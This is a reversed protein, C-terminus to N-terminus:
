QPVGYDHVVLQYYANLGHHVMVALASGVFADDYGPYPPLVVATGAPMFATTQVYQQEVLQPLFKKLKIFVKHGLDAQYTSEARTSSGDLEDYDSGLYVKSFFSSKAFPNVPNMDRLTQISFPTEPVWDRTNVVHLAWGGRMIYDFDYAYYQNGPKSAASCYTKITIAGDGLLGKDLYYLYSRLLFAISGGQSHGMIIFSRIGKQHYERVKEVVTPALSAMGILWGAHVSAKFDEALKYHFMTSDNLQLIGTAPVMACYFNELWSEEKGISGRISIIGVSDGMLWFDWRNDLGVLPSRYVLHCGAPDPLMKGLNKWPTDIQRNSVELLRVYEQPDFGPHLQAQPTESILLALALVIGVHKMLIIM